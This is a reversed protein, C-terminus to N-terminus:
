RDQDKAARAMRKRLAHKDFLKMETGLGWKVKNDVIGRIIGPPDDSEALKVIEMWVSQYDDPDIATKKAEAIVRDMGDSRKKVVHQTRMLAVTPQPPAAPAEPIIPVAAHFPLRNPIRQGPVLAGDHTPWDGGSVLPRRLSSTRRFGASSPFNAAHGQPASPEGYRFRSDQIPRGAVDLPALTPRKSWDGMQSTDINQTICWALFEGPSVGKEPKGQSKWLTLIDRAQSIEDSMLSMSHWMEDTDTDRGEFPMVGSVLLAGTAPSWIEQQLYENLLVDDYGLKITGVM